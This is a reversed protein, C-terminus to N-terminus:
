KAIFKAAASIAPKPSMSFEGATMMPAMSIAISYPGITPM